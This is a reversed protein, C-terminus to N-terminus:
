TLNANFLYTIFILSPTAQWYRLVLLFVLLTSCFSSSCVGKLGELSVAFADEQTKADFQHIRMRQKPPVMMMSILYDDKKFAHKGASYATLWCSFSAM